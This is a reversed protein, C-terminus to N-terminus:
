VDNTAEERSANAQSKILKLHMLVEPEFMGFIRLCSWARAVM